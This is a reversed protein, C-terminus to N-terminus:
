CMVLVSSKERESARSPWIRAPISQSAGRSFRLRNTKAAIPFQLRSRIEQLLDEPLLPKPPSRSLSESSISDSSRLSQTSQLRCICKLERLCFCLCLCCMTLSVRTEREDEQTGDIDNAAMSNRLSIVCVRLCPSQCPSPPLSSSLLSFFLM